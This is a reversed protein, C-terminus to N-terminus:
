VKENRLLDAQFNSPAEMAVVTLLQLLHNQFMDRFIGAQDSYGAWDGLVVTESVTIQVNDINNRNWIPEFITNAFRLVLLNQVTEKGLYHDIRFVQEENFVSHISKNLAQASALDSGFPKEIVVRWWAGAANAM